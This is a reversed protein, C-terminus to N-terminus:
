VYFVANRGGSLMARLNAAHNEAGATDADDAGSKLWDPGDDDRVRQARHCADIPAKGPYNGNETDEFLRSM